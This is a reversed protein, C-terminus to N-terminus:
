MKTHSYKYLCGQFTDLDRLLSKKLKSKSENFMKRKNIMFGLLLEHSQTNGQGFLKLCYASIIEKFEDKSQKNSKRCLIKSGVEKVHEKFENAYFRRM